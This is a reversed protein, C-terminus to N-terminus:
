GHFTSAAGKTLYRHQRYEPPAQQAGMHWPIFPATVSGTPAVWLLGLEQYELTDRLHAVQGYGAEDDSIRPDRVMEMMEDVTVPTINSLEREVEKPSM